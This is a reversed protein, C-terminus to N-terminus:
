WDKTLSIRYSKADTIKIFIYGLIFCIIHMAVPFILFNAKVSFFSNFVKALPIALSTMFLYILLITRSFVVSMPAIILHHTLYKREEILNCLAVNLVFMSITAFTMRWGSIFIYQSWLTENGLHEIISDIEFNWFYIMYALAPLCLWQVVKLFPRGRKLLYHYLLFGFIFVSIWPILPWYHFGYQDGILAGSFLNYLRAAFTPSDTHFDLFYFYLGISIGVVLASAWLRQAWPILTKKLILLLILASALVTYYRLMISLYNTNSLAMAQEWSMIQYPWLLPRLFPEIAVVAVAVLALSRISKLAIASVILIALGNFHLANWAFLYEFGYVFFEKLSELIFLFACINFAIEMPFNVLRDGKVYPALRFRLVAGATAPIFVNCLAGVFFSRTLFNKEYIFKSGATYAIWSISHITILYSVSFYKLHTIGFSEEKVKENM